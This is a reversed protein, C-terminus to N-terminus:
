FVRPRELIRGGDGLHGAVAAHVVDLLRRSTQRARHRVPLERL